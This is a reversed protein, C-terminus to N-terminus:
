EKDMDSKVDVKIRNERNALEWTTFFVLQARKVLLDFDIKDITDTTRHYDKHTGNFYFVIPIKNKAFNYHDSRYYFRNPDNPKNFTYDLELKTYTANATENIRYLETSLKDAGIVYVYDRIGLSDHKEDTRGIMDSNLDVVTKELPILPHSVYYKSGFLGLEEGSVTMFLISRRPGHGEKKAESFVKALEMVASTGSGNDDAGHYITSDNRGLHDYHATIVVVEDKKDTGELFGAVNQGKLRNTNNVLNVFASSKSVFGQPKGKRDIKSKAKDLMEENLEPFFNMAMEHTIFIVPIATPSHCLTKFEEIHVSYNLSDIMKDLPDCIIFAVSPKKEYIVSMKKRWDTSWSTTNGGKSYKKNEPEGDFFLIAKGAVNVQDYDNYNKDAIGYGTFVITDLVITTDAYGSMYYYDKMFLCFQQNVEINKGMNTQLSKPFDQMFTGHSIPKLGISIFHESIFAAAKKQGPKGTERGELSDSALVNLYNRIDETKIRQGYHIADKNQASSISYSLFLISFFCAISFQHKKKNRGM